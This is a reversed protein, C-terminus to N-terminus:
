PHGQNSPQGENSPQGQNKPAVGGIRACEEVYERFVVTEETEKFVDLLDRWDYHAFHTVMQALEAPLRMRPSARRQGAVHVASMGLEATEQRTMANATSGFILLLATIFESTTRM